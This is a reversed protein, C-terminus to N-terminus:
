QPTINDSSFSWEVIGPEGDNSKDLDPLKRKMVWVGTLLYIATPTGSITKHILTATKKYAPDVPCQGETLWAELAAQEISHHLMTKATWEQPVVNGGSAKTRDPLDVAQIELEIGSVETFFFSTSIGVVSLEYNNVAIHDPLVSGQLAM